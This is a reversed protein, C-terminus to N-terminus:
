ILWYSNDLEMTSHIINFSNRIPDPGAINLLLFVCQDFNLWDKRLGLDSILSAVSAHWHEALEMLAGDEIWSRTFYKLENGFFFRGKCIFYRQRRSMRRSTSQRHHQVGKAFQSKTIHATIDLWIVYTFVGQAWTPLELFPSKFPRITLTGTPM